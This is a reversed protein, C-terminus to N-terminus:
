CKNVAIYLVIYMVSQLSSFFDLTKYCGTNNDRCRYRGFLSGTQGRGCVREALDDV